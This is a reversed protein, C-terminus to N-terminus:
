GITHQIIDLLEERDFPKSLSAAANMVACQHGPLGSIVIVPTKKLGPIKVLHHYFRPGWDGPMEIDLTILDPRHKETQILGEQVDGAEYVDYGHDKLLSALYQQIHPDDEIVLIKKKLIIEKDIDSKLAHL